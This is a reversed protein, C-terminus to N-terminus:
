YRRLVKKIMKRRKEKIKGMEEDELSPIEAM